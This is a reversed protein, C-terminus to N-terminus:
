TLLFSAGYHFRMAKPNPELMPARAKRGGYWVAVPFFSEAERGTARGQQAITQVFLSLLILASTIFRM